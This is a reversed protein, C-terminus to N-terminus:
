ETFGSRDLRQEALDLLHKASDRKGVGWLSAAIEHLLKVDANLARVHRDFRKRLTEVPLAKARALASWSAGGLKMRCIEEDEALHKRRQKGRIEARLQFLLLELLQHTLGENQALLDRLRDNEERLAKCGACDAPPPAPGGRKSM